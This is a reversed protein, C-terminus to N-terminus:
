PRANPHRTEDDEAAARALAVALAVPAGLMLLGFLLAAMWGTIPRFAAVRDFISGLQGWLSRSPSSLLTVSLQTASRRGDITTPLPAGERQGPNVGFYSVRHRGTHTLCLEGRVDGSPPKIRALGDATGSLGGPIKGATVYGPALAQVTIPGTPHTAQVIVKVYRADPTFVVDGLCVQEGRKATVPALQAPNQPTVTPTSAVDPRALKLFPSAKAVLFYAFFALALVLLWKRM